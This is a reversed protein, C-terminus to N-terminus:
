SIIRVHSNGGKLSLLKSSDFGGFGSSKTPPSATLSKHTFVMNQSLCTPSSATMLSCVASTHLKDNKDFWKQDIGGDM